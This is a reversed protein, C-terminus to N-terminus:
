WSIVFGPSLISVGGSGLGYSTEQWFHNSFFLSYIFILATNTFYIQIFNIM